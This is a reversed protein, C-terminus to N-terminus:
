ISLSFSMTKMIHTVSSIPISTIKRSIKQHTCSTLCSYIHAYACSVYSELVDPVNFVIKLCVLCMLCLKCACWVYNGPVGPVSFM